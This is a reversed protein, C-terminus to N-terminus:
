KGGDCRIRPNPIRKLNPSSQRSFWLFSRRTLVRSVSTEAIDNDSSVWDVTHQKETLISEGKKWM